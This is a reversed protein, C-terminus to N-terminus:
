FSKKFGISANIPAEVQSKSGGNSFQTGLEGYVQVNRDISWSLGAAVETNSYQQSSELTTTAVANSFHTKDKSGLGQWVNVRGYPQFKGHNTDYDAVLRVGLRATFSDATDMKVKTQTVGDLRGNDFDSYQYILQAQPELSWASSGLRFSKGGETSATLTNGKVTYSGNNGTAALRSKHNGYQLVNDVYMGDGSFWTAYGGVYFANDDINGGKGDSGTKTGKVNSDIDLISTYMGAKWSENAYMDVGVQIGMTHSSTQTGAADDLKTKGSYGLMRAWARNDEDIGPKVEDGMRQHMNGLLSIDGQRVVSALGSYLMTEPRYESRLYWNEGQGQANGAHLQYEFAGAAMRDAALHFADRSTQATTTAGNLATVM